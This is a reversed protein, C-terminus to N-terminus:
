GNIYCEIIKTRSGTDATVFVKGVGVVESGVLRDRGLSLVRCAGVEVRRDLDEGGWAPGEVDWSPFFFFFVRFGPRSRASIAASIVALSTKSIGWPVREERTLEASDSLELSWHYSGRDNRVRNKPTGSEM